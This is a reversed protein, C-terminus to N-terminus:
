KAGGLLQEEFQRKASHWRAEAEARLAFAKRRDADLHEVLSRQVELPPTPIELSKFEEKNINPQGSPRQITAVWERYASTKTYYYVFRPLVRTHDFRFRICYGAFVAPGIDPNYIFTKGATAGSRAFLVDGNSLTCAAEITEATMFVHDEPIGHDQFDTIRIYKPQDDSVREVARAGSGYDPEAATLSALRYFTFSKTATHQRYLYTKPDLREQLNEYPIAFARQKTRTPPALGLATMLFSDLGALIADAQALRERRDTRAADMIAVLANQKRSPPIPVPLVEFENTNISQVTAGHKTVLPLIRDQFV